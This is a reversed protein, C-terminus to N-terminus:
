TLYYYSRHHREKLYFFQKRSFLLYLLLFINIKTRQRTDENVKNITFRKYNGSEKRKTDMRGKSRFDRYHLLWVHSCSSVCDFHVNQHRHLHKWELRLRSHFGFIGLPPLQQFCSRSTWSLDRRLISFLCLIKNLLCFCNM